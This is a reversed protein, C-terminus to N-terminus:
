YFIIETYKPKHSPLTKCLLSTLSYSFYLVHSNVTNPNGRLLTPFRVCEAQISAYVKAMDTFYEPLYTAKSNRYIM